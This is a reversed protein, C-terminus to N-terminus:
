ADEEQVPYRWAALSSAVVACIIIVWGSSVQSLAPMRFLCSIVIAVCVTFVVPRETKMPPVVIAIFMGYIAINLASAASAPLAGFATAGLLTGGAWGFYPLTMLGLFYIATVPGKQQMAVAFIEDTNGFAILARKWVPMAPDLKQSLSLSMLTYRLNIVLTTVAIELFAGGTLILATGAIVIALSAALAGWKTVPLALKKKRFSSAKEVYKEDIGNLATTLKEKKM